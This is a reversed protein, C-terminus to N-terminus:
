RDTFLSDLMCGIEISPKSFGLRNGGTRSGHQLPQLDRVEDDVRRMLSPGHSATSTRAYRRARSRLMRRPEEYPAVPRMADRRRSVIVPTVSAIMSNIAAIETYVACNRSLARLCAIEAM